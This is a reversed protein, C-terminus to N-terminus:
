ESAAEADAGAGGTYGGHKLAFDGCMMEDDPVRETLGLWQERLERVKIFPLFGILLREAIPKMTAGEGPAPSALVQEAVRVAEAPDAGRRQAEAEIRARVADPLAM